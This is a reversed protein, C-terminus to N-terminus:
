MNKLTNVTKRNLGQPVVDWRVSHDALLDSELAELGLIFRELMQPVKALM